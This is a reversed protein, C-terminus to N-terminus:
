EAGLWSQEQWDESQDGGFAAYYAADAQEYSIDVSAYAYGGFVGMLLSAFAAGAPWRAGQPFILDAFWNRGQRASRPQPASHLIVASLAASPEPVPMRAFMADLGRAEDLADAFLEPSANLLAKAAAREDDPWAGPEAGFAAILELLREPTMTEQTM